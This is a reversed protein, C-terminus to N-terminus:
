PSCPQSSLTSVLFATNSANFMHDSIVMDFAKLMKYQEAPSSPDFGRFYLGAPTGVQKQYTSQLTCLLM